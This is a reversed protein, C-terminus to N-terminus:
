LGGILHRLLRRYLATFRRRDRAFRGSGELALLGHAQAWLSLSVELSSARRFDGRAIGREVARRLEDFVASRHAAFDAPFRRLGKRPTSFMLRFLDPRHFALERYRDLIQLVRARPASAVPARRLARGFEEFGRDAVAAILADKDRYHRYLATATIGVEAAVRRMSVGEIGERANLACAADLIEQETSV